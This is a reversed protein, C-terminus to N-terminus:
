GHGNTMPQPPVPRAVPGPARPGPVQHGNLHQGTGGATAQPRREEVVRWLVVRGKDGAGGSTAVRGGGPCPSVGFVTDNHGQICAQEVCTAMDWALIRGDESGCVVSTDSGGRELLGLGIQLRGNEHGRFARLCRAHPSEDDRLWLRVNHDLAASLVYEGNPTYRAAGIPTHQIGDTVITSICRGSPLDWFRLLGDRSCTLMEEGTRQVDVDTLAESHAEIVRVCRPARVDWVRAREDASGTILLHSAPGFTACTVFSEHEELLRVTRMAEVDWLRATRDDSGSVLFEGCSSWVLTSIGLDHGLLRHSRPVGGPPLPEGVPPVRWVWVMNGNPAALLRGNPSFEVVTTAKGGTEMLVAQQEFELCAVGAGALM